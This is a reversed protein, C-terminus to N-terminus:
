DRWDGSLECSEISKLKEKALQRCEWMRRKVTGETLGLLESAQKYNRSGFFIARWLRRCEDPLSLLVRCATRREDRAILREDPSHTDDVLEVAGLDALEVTKCEKYYDICTNRAIAYIYTKLSSEGKFRGGRISQLLKLYVDQTIDNVNERDSWNWKHVIATIISKLEAMLGKNNSEIAKLLEVSTMETM